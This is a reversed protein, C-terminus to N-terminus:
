LDDSLFDTSFEGLKKKSDAQAQKFVKEVFVPDSEIPKIVDRKTKKM